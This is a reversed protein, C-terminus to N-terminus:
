LSHSQYTVYYVQIQLPGCEPTYAKLNVGLDSIAVRRGILCAYKYILWFESPLGKSKLNCAEM